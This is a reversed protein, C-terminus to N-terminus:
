LDRPERQSPSEILDSLAGPELTFAATEFEPVTQQRVIWGLDGGNAASEPDESNEKALAAFDAGGELQEQLGSAKKKVEEVKEPTKDPTLLLIHSVQVREEIRYSDKNSVYYEQIEEEAVTTGERLKQNEVYLMQVSRKEPVPYGERNEEFYATLEAESTGVEEQFSSPNLFVYDLVVKENENHFTAIVEEPTITLSDTVVQLLKEYLMSDRYSQEFQVVTMGNAAMINEYQQQGVFKGEPYINPDQQLRKQWEDRSVELGLRRAEQLTAKELVMQDLMSPIFMRMMEQRMNGRRSVQILRRQLDWTTIEEGGVDAVVANPIAATTSTDMIGPILTIVMALAILVLISGVVFRTVVDKRRFINLM